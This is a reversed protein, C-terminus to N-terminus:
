ADPTDQTNIFTKLTDLLATMGAKAASVAGSATSTAGKNDMEAILTPIVGAYKEARQRSSQASFSATQHVISGGNDKIDSAKILLSGLHLTKTCMEAIADIYKDTTLNQGHTVDWVMSAVFSGYMREIVDFASDEGVTGFQEVLEDACDEAVDHLIGAVIVEWTRVGWRLMRLAVRLPHEIYPTVPYIGRIKRTQRRHLYSALTVASTIAEAGEPVLRDTERSLEFILMASDMDKLPIRPFLATRTRTSIM